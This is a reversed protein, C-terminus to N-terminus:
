VKKTWKLNRRGMRKELSSLSFFCCCLFFSSFLFNILFYSWLVFADIFLILMHDCTFHWLWHLVVFVLHDNILVGKFLFVQKRHCMCANLHESSNVRLSDSIESWVFDDAILHICLQTRSSSSLIVRWTMPWDTKYIAWALSLSLSGPFAHELFAGPPFAACSSLSIIQFIFLSFFFM